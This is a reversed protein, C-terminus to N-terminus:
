SYPLFVTFTTGKAPQSEVHIVGKHEEIIRRTVALGLGTGNTKTTFFPDFISVIQEHPIGQGTDTINVRLFESSTNGEPLSRAADAPVNRTEVTLKGEAGMAEVANLLLNVFAQELQHDDGTFLDSTANFQRNFAISKGEVHHQALRLSYELIEHLRVRSFAPRAPAAYKLISGVITDVREMERSVTAALEASPNKELLLDVFTKIPVLANRIEHAMSASLTGISALRDLRRMEQDVKDTSSVDDLLVVVSGASRGTSAPIATVSLTAAGTTNSSLVVTQDAVERHDKQAEHIISQITAPLSTVSRVSDQDPPLHLLRKARATLKIIQGDADVVM